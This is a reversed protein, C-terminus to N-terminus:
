LKERINGIVHVEVRPELKDICGFKYEVSSIFDYNDDELVGARVLSDSFFKDTICCINSIDCRRNTRPYLIYILKCSVLSGLISSQIAPIMYSEYLQKAKNLTQYHANRYVNLNLSFNKNKSVPISLPSNFIWETMLCQSIIVRLNPSLPVM